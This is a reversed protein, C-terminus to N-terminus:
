LVSAGTADRRSTPSVEHTAPEFEEMGVKKNRREIFHKIPGLSSEVAMKQITTSQTSDAHDRVGQNLQISATAIV